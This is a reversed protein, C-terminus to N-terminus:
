DSFSGPKDFPWVESLDEKSMTQLFEDYLKKHEEITERWADTPVWGDSACNVRSTVFKNLTQENELAKYEEQHTLLEEPTPLPYPCSGALELENWRNALDMLVQRLIGAGDKYTRHCCEFFRAVNQDLKWAAYLKPALLTVGANFAQYCLDANKGAPLDNSPSRDDSTSIHSAFDPMENAHMFAPNIGCSQWDIIDTIITPDENSVFINRKNLDPHLLIPAAARQTRPDELLRCAIDRGFNLLRIHEAAAGHYIPKQSVSADM